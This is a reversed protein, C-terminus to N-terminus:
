NSKEARFNKRWLSVFCIRATQKRRNKCIRIFNKWNKPNSSFTATKSNSLAPFGACSNELITKPYFNTASPLAGSSISCITSGCFGPLKRRSKTIKMSVEPRILHKLSKPLILNIGFLRMLPLIEFFVPAFEDAAFVLPKEGKSRATQNLQPFFEALLSLDKLVDFKIEAFRRERFLKALEFPPEFPKQKDEVVVDLLFDDHKGEDVRLVPVFNKHSVYFRSLWVNIADPKSAESFNEFKEAKDFFFLNAIKDPKFRFEYHLGNWSQFFHTLFLSCLTLTQSESELRIKPEHKFVQYKLVGTPTIQSVQGFIKKVSDNLMAPLWRIKFVKEDRKFLQPVIAGRELLGLSFSYITQLAIVSPSYNLLNKAEIASLARILQEFDECKGAKLTFDNEANLVIEVEDAFSM